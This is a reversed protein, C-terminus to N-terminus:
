IRIAILAAAASPLLSLNCHRRCSRFSRPPPQATLLTVFCSVHFTAIRLASSWRFGLRRQRVPRHWGRLTRVAPPAGPFVWTKTVVDYVGLAELPPPASSKARGGCLVLHRGGAPTLTHYARPDPAVGGRPKVARM